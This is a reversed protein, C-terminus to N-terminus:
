GLNGDKSIRKTILKICEKTVSDVDKTADVAILEGLSALMEYIELARRIRDLKEFYSWSSQKYKLRGIAVELPVRLYIAVDPKVAYRNVSRIWAVDGEKAGQYAISSYVYRDCVVIYGQDLLPEIVKRVHFFRDLAMLLTEVEVEAEGYVEIYRKLVETFPSAYPEYTYFARYGMDTFKEVIRKSITTKGSGDIGEIVVFLGSRNKSM